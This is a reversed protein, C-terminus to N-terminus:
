ARRDARPTSGSWWPVCTRGRSAATLLLAASAADYDAKISKSRRSPSPQVAAGAASDRAEGLHDLKRQLRVPAGLALTVLDQQEIEVLPELELLRDVMRDFDAAGGPHLVLTVAAAIRELGLRLRKRRRVQALRASLGVRAGAESQPRLPLLPRRAFPVPQGTPHPRPRHRRAICAGTADNSRRSRALFRQTTDSHFPKTAMVRTRSLRELRCPSGPMCASSTPTLAYGCRGPPPPEGAGSEYPM